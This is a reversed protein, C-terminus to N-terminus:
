NQKHLQKEDTNKVKWLVVNQSERIQRKKIYQFKNKFRTRKDRIRKKSLNVKSQEGKELKKHFLGIVLKRKRSCASNYSDRYAM